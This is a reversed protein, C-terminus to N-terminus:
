VGLQSLVHRLEFQNFGPTEISGDPALGSFEFGNEVDEYYVVGTPLQAVVFVKEVEALRHIPVEFFPVRYRAFFLAQEPSCRRLEDEVLADLELHTISSWPRVTGAPSAADCRPCAHM